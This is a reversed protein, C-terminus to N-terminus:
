SKNKKSYINWIRRKIKTGQPLGKLMKMLEEEYIETEDNSAEDFLTAVLEDRILKSKIMRKLVEQRVTANRELMQIATQYQQEILLIDLNVVEIFEEQEAVKDRKPKKGLLGGVAGMQEEKKIEM